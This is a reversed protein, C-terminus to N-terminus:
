QLVSAFTDRFYTYVRIAKADDSEEPLQESKVHDSYAAAQSQIHVRLALRRRSDPDEANQIGRATALLETIHMRTAYLRKEEITKGSALAEECQDFLDMQQQDLLNALDGIGPAEDDAIRRDLNMINILRKSGTLDHTAPTWTALDYPPQPHLSEIQMALSNLPHLRGGTFRNVAIIAGPIGGIESNMYM